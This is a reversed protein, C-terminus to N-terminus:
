SVITKHQTVEILLSKKIDLKKKKVKKSMDNRLFRIIWSPLNSQAYFWTKKFYYPHSVSIINDAKVHRFNKPDIIKISKLGFFSISNYQYKKLKTFYINQIEDISLKSLLLKLKPLIDLMWHAYNNHGSAGQTLIILNGKIKKIFKPTGTSLIQNKNNKLLGKIQQFSAKEVLQNGSIVSVNEILNTFVRGNKLKHLKYKYRSVNEGNVTKLKFTQLNKIKRKTIFVKGYIILFINNLFKKYISSLKM